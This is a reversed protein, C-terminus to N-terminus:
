AAVVAPVPRTSGAYTGLARRTADQVSQPVPEGPHALIRQGADRLAIGLAAAAGHDAAYAMEAPTAQPPIHPTM